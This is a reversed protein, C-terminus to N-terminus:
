GTCYEPLTYSKCPPSHTYISAPFGHPGPDIQYVNEDMWACKCADLCMLRVNPMCVGVRLVASMCVQLAARSAKLMNAHGSEQACVLVCVCVCVGTCVGVM